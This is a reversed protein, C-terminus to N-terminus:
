AFRSPYYHFTSFICANQNSRARGIIETIQAGYEEGEAVPRVDEVGLVMWGYKTFVTKVSDLYSTSTEAWTVVNTFARTNGDEASPETLTEVVGIWLERM